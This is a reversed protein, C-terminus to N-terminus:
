GRRAVLAFPGELDALAEPRDFLLRETEDETLPSLARRDAPVLDLVRPLTQEVPARMADGPLNPAADTRHAREGGEQTTAKWREPPPTAAEGARLRGGTGDPM